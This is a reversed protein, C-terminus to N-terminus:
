KQAEKEKRRAEKEAEEKEKQKKQVAERAERQEREKEEKEMQARKAPTVYAGGSSKEKAASRRAEKEEDDRQRRDDEEKRRDRRDEEDRERPEEKVRNRQSPPVYKGATSGGKRLSEFGDEDKKAKMTTAKKLERAEGHHLQKGIKESLTAEVAIVIEEEIVTVIGEAEDGIAIMEAKMKHDVAIALAVEMVVEM